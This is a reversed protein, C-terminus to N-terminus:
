WCSIYLKNRLVIEILVFDLVNFTHSANNKVCCYLFYHDNLYSVLQLKKLLDLGLDGFLQLLFTNLGLGQGVHM